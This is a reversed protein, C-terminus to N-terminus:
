GGVIMLTVISTSASVVTLITAHMFGAALTAQSAKGAILGMMFSNVLAGLMMVLVLPAVSQLPIKALTLLMYLLMVPMSSLLVAGFYPLIVQSRMRRRTEEELESLTQMFRALTDIVEPSGGGVIISDALFRFAAITFWERVGKLAKRLADELSYGITLAAAARTIIPTLRGYNRQALLIICREPALGTKRVESLDRLFDATSRVIGRYGKVIARYKLWSPISVALFAVATALILSRVGSLTLRGMFIGAGGTLVLAVIFTAIAIPIFSLSVAYVHNYSIPTRPQNLHIMFMIAAGILPLVFFNFLAPGSIDVSIETITGGTYRVQQAASIAAQVAFFVFLTIAVIVGFVIYIELYSALRNMIDRIERARAELIERTRIELYHVVDGGSRVTTTYGLMLDRFRSSPHYSAVKDIASIIDEGFAKVRTMIRRMEDRISKFVRLEAIREIIKEVSYGGRAMTALYAIFFPLENDVDSRRASARIYPYALRLAFIIIPILISVLVVILTTVLSPKIFLMTPVILAVSFLSSLLLLALTEAGYKIPHITLGARLLVRDFEFAKALRAGPKEFFTLAFASFIERYTPARVRRAIAPKAQKYRKKVEKKEERKFLKKFFSM